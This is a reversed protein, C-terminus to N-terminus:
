LRVGTFFFVHRFVVDRSRQVFEEGGTPVLYTSSSVNTIDERPCVSNPTTDKRSFTLHLTLKTRVLKSATIHGRVCM